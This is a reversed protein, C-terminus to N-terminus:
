LPHISCEFPRQFPHLAISAMLYEASRIAAQPIFLCQAPIVQIVRVLAIFLILRRYFVQDPKM